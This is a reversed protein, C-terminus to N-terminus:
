QHIPMTKRQISSTSQFITSHSFYGPRATKRQISSTSQFLAPRCSASRVRPRGRYLPLPNFNTLISTITYSIKTKRQISSTSQFIAKNCHIFDMYRRGRYLPLPNFDLYIVLSQALTQRGRYLPLPNFNEPQPDVYEEPPDEETYLFHISIGITDQLNKSTTDEETYLFHISILHYRLM